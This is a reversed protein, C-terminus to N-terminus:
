NMSLCIGILSIVLATLIGIAWTHVRRWSTNSKVGGNLKKMEAKIDKVDGILGNDDPNGDIGVVAQHVERLMDKQSLENM